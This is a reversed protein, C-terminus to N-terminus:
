DTKDEQPHFYRRTHLNQLGPMLPKCDCNNKNGHKYTPDKTTYLFTKICSGTCLQPITTMVILNSTLCQLYYGDKPRDSVFASPVYALMEHKNLPTFM